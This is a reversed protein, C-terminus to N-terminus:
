QHGSRGTKYLSMSCRSLKPIDEQNGNLDIAISYFWYYGFSSPFSFNWNWPIGTDPNSVNNWKVYGAEESGFSSWTPPTVWYKRVFVNDVLVFNGSNMSVGHVQSVLYDATTKTSDTVSRASDGAPASPTIKASYASGSVNIKVHYWVGASVVPFATGIQTWTAPASFEFFGGDAASNQLRWCYGNTWSLGNARWGFQHIIRPTGALYVDYEIIGNLIKYATRIRTDQYTRNAPISNDPNHRLAPASNGQSQNIYISDSNWSDMVWKSLGNSFDDFFYFTNDGSSTTSVISNGYYLWISTDNRSNNVWFTAQIGATYNRLWFSLATSNDSYSVFRIDGFNSRAHSNCTVNGGSTNGIIIKMQYGGNKGSISLQKRYQWNPNWWSSNQSSYYYWITVNKTDDSATASILFPSITVNYPSIFNVQSSPKSTDYGCQADFEPSTPPDETNGATDHALSYLRYHGNGNPFNFSWSWPANEDRSFAVATNWSSANDTRYRYYLTVNKVGSLADNTNTVTISLPNTTTNHWYASIADVQSTPKVADYGCLTDNGTFYEVNSDNDIALSYFRYYGSGSPFTFVWSIAKWPDTDAGFKSSNSWTNNNLSYYYYLTVNQLGSGNFDTAQSTITMSTSYWYPSIANVESYPKYSNYACETDNNPTVPPGEANGAHDVAISYFQYFGKAKPFNFNWSWPAAGDSSFLQWSGWVSANDIRYRYYLLINQLGSLSDNATSCNIVVRRYPEVYWYPIINDLRSSPKNTDVGCFTDFGPSSPASEVNLERDIARSYFRYYGDGQPPTFSWTYPSATDNTGYKNWGSWGSVNNASYNYYLAVEKIGTGNDSATVSIQFPTTKQWYSSLTTVASIPYENDYTWTVNADNVSPTLYTNGTLNIRWQVWRKDPVQSITTYWTATSLNAQTDAAKVWTTITTGSPATIGVYINNYDPLTRTTDHAKSLLNGISYYGSENREVTVNVVDVYVHENNNLGVVRWRIQFNSKFYQSDTIKQSYQAWAGDGFNDLRGIQDWSGGDYYDLYYEGDDAADSYGWFKVYIATVNSGACNMSPSLLNGSAGGAGGTGDFDASYTGQYVQDTERNWNSTGPDESWGTPPWSGEFGENNIRTFNRLYYRAQLHFSDSSVNINTKTGNNFDSTSTQLWNESALNYAFAIDGGFQFKLTHPGPTLVESIEYCTENSSFDPIFVSDNVWSYILTENGRRCELFKLDHDQDNNSWTTRNIASIILDAQGVTTFQVTWRGGILPYSQINLITIEESDGNKGMLVIMPLVSASVVMCLVILILFRKLAEFKMASFCNVGDGTKKLFLSKVGNRTEQKLKSRPYQSIESRLIEQKGIPNNESRFFEIDKYLTKEEKSLLTKEKLVVDVIQEINKEVAELKKEKEYWRVENELPMDRQKVSPQFVGILTSFFLCFNGIVVNVSSSSTEQNDILIKITWSGPLAKNSIGIYFSYTNNDAYCKSPDIYSSNYGSADRWVGCDYEWQYFNQISRDEPNPEVTGSFAIICIKETENCLSVDVYHFDGAVLVSNKVSMHAPSTITHTLNAEVCSVGVLLFPMLVVFIVIKRYIGDAIMGDSIHM